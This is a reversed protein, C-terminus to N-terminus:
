VGDDQMENILELFEAQRKTEGDDASELAMAAKRFTPAMMGILRMQIDDNGHQVLFSARAIAQLALDRAAQRVQPDDAVLDILHNPQVTSM